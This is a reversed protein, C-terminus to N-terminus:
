FYKLQQKLNRVQIGRNNILLLFLVTEKNLHCESFELYGDFKNRLIDIQLLFIQFKFVIHFLFHSISLPSTSQVSVIM